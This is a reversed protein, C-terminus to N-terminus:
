YKFGRFHFNVIGNRRCYSALKDLLIPSPNNRVETIKSEYIKATWFRRDIPSTYTAYYNCLGDWYFKFDNLSVHTTM